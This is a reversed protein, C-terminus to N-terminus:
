LEFNKTTIDYEQFINFYNHITEQNKIVVCYKGSPLSNSSGDILAPFHDIDDSVLQVKIINQKKSCHMLDCAILTDVMKQERTFFVDRHYNECGPVPCKKNKHKTFNNLIKIPCRDANDRCINTQKENNIRFRPVGNREHYTNTWYLSPLNISSSVIDVSGRIIIRHEQNIYPFIKLRSLKMQLESANSTLIGEKYWGGYLRIYIREYSENEIFDLLHSTLLFELEEDNIQDIPKKIWNDFDILIYGSKNLINDSM